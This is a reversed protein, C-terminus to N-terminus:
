WLTSTEVVFWNQLNEHISLITFFLLIIVLWFVTFPMTNNRRHWNCRSGLSYIWWRYSIHFYLCIPLNSSKRRRDDTLIRLALQNSSFEATAIRATRNLNYGIERCHSLRNTSIHRFESFLQDQSYRTNTLEILRLFDNSL